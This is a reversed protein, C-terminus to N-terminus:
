LVRDACHTRHNQTGKNSNTLHEDFEPNVLVGGGWGSSRLAETKACLREDSGKGASAVRMVRALRRNQPGAELGSTGGTSTEGEPSM